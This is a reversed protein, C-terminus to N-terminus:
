SSAVTVSLAGLAWSTASQTAGSARGLHAQNAMDGGGAPLAQQGGIQLVTVERRPAKTVQIVGAPADFFGELAELVSPGQLGDRAERLLGQQQVHSGFHQRVVKGRQHTSGGLGGWAEAGLGALEGLPLALARVRGSQQGFKQRGNEVAHTVDDAADGLGQLGHRSTGKPDQGPSRGRPGLAACLGMGAM